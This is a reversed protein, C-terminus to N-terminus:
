RGRRGFNYKWQWRDQGRTSPPLVSNPVPMFQSPIGFLSELIQKTRAFGSGGNQFNYDPTQTSFSGLSAFFPVDAAAFRQMAGPLMQAPAYLPVQQGLLGRSRLKQSEQIM